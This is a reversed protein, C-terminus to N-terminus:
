VPLNRKRRLENLTEIAAPPNNFRAKSEAEILLQESSRMLVIHGEYWLCPYDKYLINYKQVNPLHKL